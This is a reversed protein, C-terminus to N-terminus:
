QRRGVQIGIAQHLKDYLFRKSEFETKDNHWIAGTLDNYTEWLQPTALLEVKDNDGVKIYDPLYKKPLAAVLKKAQEITLQEEKLRQYEKIILASAELAKLMTQKLREKNITLGSTHRQYSHSLVDGINIVALNSCTYRWTFVSMSLGLSADISNHVAFGVRIIDGDGLDIDQQRAYFAHAQTDKKGSFFIGSSGSAGVATALRDFREANVLRAVEDSTEIVVENPLLKYRSSVISLLQKHRVIAKYPVKEGNHALFQEQLGFGRWTDDTKVVQFTYTLDPTTTEATENM